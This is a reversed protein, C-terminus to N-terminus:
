PAQKEAVIMPSTPNGVMTSLGGKLTALAATLGAVAAASLLSKDLVFGASLAGIYGLFAVGFTRGVNFLLKYWFPLKEDVAPIFAIM